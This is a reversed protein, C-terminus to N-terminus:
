PTASMRSSAASGTADYNVGAVQLVCELNNASYELGHMTYHEGGVSTVGNVSRHFIRTFLIPECTVTVQQGLVCNEGEETVFSLVTRGNNAVVDLNRSHCRSFQNTSFDAVFATAFESHGYPHSGEEGFVSIFLSGEVVAGVSQTTFQLAGPGQATVDAYTLLLTSAAFVSVHRLSM